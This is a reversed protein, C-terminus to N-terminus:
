VQHRLEVTRKVGTAVEELSLDLEVRLDAGGRAGQRRTGGGGFLGEFLSGEFLGGFIDPFHSLIDDVNTFRPESGRARLGEHGYRDYLAKREPDSLVEYAEAIEKFRAEASPDGPNKDPHFKLALQRYAKKIEDPTASRSVALAEYYDTQSMSSKFTEM